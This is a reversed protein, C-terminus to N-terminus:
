LKLIKLKINVIGSMAQGYEASYGGTIIELEEIADPNVFLNGSYGSLPDKVSFGDVIFMSEDIRGGRIHIENDQTTVGIQESLIDEVSSVVKNEIEEKRVRAVSSTENVDFLPKKGLVIVDEGFSLVTEDLSFNLETNSGEQIKVGTQLIVKYGIMSVEVDYSGTNINKIIFRGDLDTATGYYTGKVMVNVGPLAEGSKSEIVKGTFVGSSQALLFIPTFFFLFYRM